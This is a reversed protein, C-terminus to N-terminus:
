KNFIVDYFTGKLAFEEPTRKYALKHFPCIRKLEEYCEENYPEFLRLLLIHPVSNSFPIVKKWDDAYFDMIMSFFLHFIFYDVLVNETKWYAFLLDRVALVFKHGTKATIFWSSINSVHGDAGPKLNQFVFFDSDLMYRPIVGGVCFVTADIWTGGYEALLAVRLLDSFHTHTIVGAEYKQEIYDPFVVYEKRNKATVLVIERETIHECISSYCDQVLKPADEMGQMWCIWIRPCSEQKMAYRGSKWEEDFSELIPLYRKKLKHLIKQQVGLRVLELSKYSVGTLCVQAVAYPLVGAKRWQNLLLWGDLKKFTSLLGKM